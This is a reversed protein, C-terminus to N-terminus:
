QVKSLIIDTKRARMEIKPQKESDEVNDFKSIVSVSNIMFVLKMM